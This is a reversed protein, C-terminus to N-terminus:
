LRERSVTDRVAPVIELAFTELYDPDGDYLFTDVGYGLALESIEDVWQGSDGNLFTRAPGPGIAGSLIYIRRIEAPDRGAEAAAEDIRQQAELLRGPPVRESPAIWGDAVRGALALARPGTVGLWVGIRHAPRLGPGGGDLRYYRGTFRAGHRGDWLLRVVHVAEELAARAAGPALRRGGYAEIADWFAGAGLGLEVRGGSFLDLTAMAKALVAPPRLPLCAVAPFVRIRGTASLVTAMLTQADVFRRQYPQDQVGLLELGIRDARRAIGVLPAGAEPTLVHGFSLRQGYDGM